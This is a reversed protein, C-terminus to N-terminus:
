LSYFKAKKDRKKLILEMFHETFQICLRLFNGKPVNCDAVQLVRGRLPQLLARRYRDYKDMWPEKMAEEQHFAQKHKATDTM